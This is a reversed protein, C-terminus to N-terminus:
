DNFPSSAPPVAQWYTKGDINLERVAWGADDGVLHPISEKARLLRDANGWFRGDVGLRLLGCYGLQGASNIVDYTRVPQGAKRLHALLWKAVRTTRKSPPGSQDKAESM